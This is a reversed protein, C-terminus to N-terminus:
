LPSEVFTQCRARRERRYPACCSTRVMPRQRSSGFCSQGTANSYSGERLADIAVQAAGEATTADASQKRLQITTDVGTDAFSLLVGSVMGVLTVFIMAIILSAGSDDGATPPRATV